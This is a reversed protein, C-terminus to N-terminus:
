SQLEQAGVGAGWVGTACGTTRSWRSFGQDYSDGAVPAGMQQLGPRLWGWGCTCFSGGTGDQWKDQPSRALPSAGPHFSTPATASVSPVIRAITPGRAVTSSSTGSRPWPPFVQRFESGRYPQQGRHIRRHALSIRGFSRTCQPCPLEAAHMCQRHGKHEAVRSTQPWLAGRVARPLFSGGRAAQLLPM